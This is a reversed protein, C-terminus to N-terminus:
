FCKLHYLYREDSRIIRRDETPLTATAIVPVVDNSGANVSQEGALKNRRKEIDLQAFAKALCSLSGCLIKVYNPLTLNYVVATAPPLSEFDWHPIKEGGAESLACLECLFFINEKRSVGSSYAECEV